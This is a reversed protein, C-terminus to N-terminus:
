ESKTLLIRARDLLNALELKKDHDLHSVMYEALETNLADLKHFEIKGKDTLNLIFARKDSLSRKKTILSKNLLKNIIRSLYGEDLNIDKNLQRATTNPNHYLEYIIHLDTISHETNLITGELLGMHKTYFKGFRRIKKEIEKNM